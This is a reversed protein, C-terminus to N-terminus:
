FQTLLGMGNPQLDKILWLILDDDIPYAEGPIVARHKYTIGEGDPQYGLHFYLRQAPGYDRYLGVGIGVQAYGRSIALQELHAILATGIGQEREEEFIWLDCIEPIRSNKFPLYESDFLLHGYGAMKAQNEVICAMRVGKQQEDLYRIWRAQTEEPTSWPFYLDALVAIDKQQLSRMSVM